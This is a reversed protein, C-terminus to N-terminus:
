IGSILENVSTRRPVVTDEASPLSTKKLPSLLILYKSVNHLCAYRSYASFSFEIKKLSM